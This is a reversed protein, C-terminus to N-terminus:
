HTISEGATERELVALRGLVEDMEVYCSQLHRSGGKTFGTRGHMVRRNNVIYMDGANMKLQVRYQTSERMAGYTMYADYFAEMKDSRILFPQVSHNSFRVSKIDGDPTLEITAADNELVLDVDSFWYHLNTKVLLDFKEPAQKRLDEAVKFGDVLTAQGGESECVLFHTLQMTPAPDRYGEDTHLLLPLSTYALSNADEISRVDFVEGWSTTRIQGFLKGVDSVTGSVTPVEHLLAVGYDRFNALFVRRADPSAVINAYNASPMADGISADWLVPKIKTRRVGNSYDYRLLWDADFLSEHGDSWTVNLCGSVDVMASVAKVDRVIASTEKVRHNTQPDRTKPCNDRLWIYHFTSHTGNVWRVELANALREVSQIATM